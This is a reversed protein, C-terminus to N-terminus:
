YSVDMVFNIFLIGPHSIYSRELSFRIRICEITIMKEVSTALTDIVLPFCCVELSWSEMHSWTVGHSEMHSWTVGHSEMHSWIVGTMRFDHIGQM